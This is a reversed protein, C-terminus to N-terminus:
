HLYRDLQFTAEGNCFEFLTAQPPTHKIARSCPLLLTTPEPHPALRPQGVCSVEMM